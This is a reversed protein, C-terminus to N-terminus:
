APPQPELERAFLSLAEHAARRKIEFVLPAPEAKPSPAAQQLTMLEFMARHNIRGTTTERGTRRKARLRAQALFSYRESRSLAVRILRCGANVVQEPDDPMVGGKVLWVQHLLGQKQELRNLARRITDQGPLHGTDEAVMKRLSAESVYAWGHKKQLNCLLRLLAADVSKGHDRFNPCENKPVAERTKPRRIARRQRAAAHLCLAPM